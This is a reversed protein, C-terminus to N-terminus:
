YLAACHKVCISFNVSISRKSCFGETKLSSQGNALKALQSGRFYGRHGTSTHSPPLIDPLATAVVHIGSCDASQKEMDTVVTTHLNHEGIDARRRKRNANHRLWYM